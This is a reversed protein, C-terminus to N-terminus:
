SISRFIRLAMFGNVSCMKMVTFVAPFHRKIPAINL